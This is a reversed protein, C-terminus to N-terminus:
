CYGEDLCTGGQVWQIPPTLNQATLTYTVGDLDSQDRKWTVKIEGNIVRIGHTTPDRLQKDPIGNKAEKIDNMADFKGVEAAILIANQWQAMALIAESFAARDRYRAYSPLAVSALIGIIAVVVMMEILTFASERARNSVLVDM